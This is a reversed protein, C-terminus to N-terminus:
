QNGPSDYIVGLQVAVNKKVAIRILSFSMEAEERKGGKRGGLVTYMRSGDFFM